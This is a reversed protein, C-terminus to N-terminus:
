QEVEVILKLTMGWVGYNVGLEIRLVRIPLKLIATQSDTQM